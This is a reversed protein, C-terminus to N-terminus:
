LQQAAITADAGLGISVPFSVYHKRGKNNNDHIAVGITFAGGSKFAIDKADGTALKRTIVATYIGEAYGGTVTLDNQDEVRDQLVYEDTTKVQAGEFTVNWLDIFQGKAMYKDLTAQPKVGDKDHSFYGYLKKDGSKHDPMGNQDSHCAIFCGYDQFPPINDNIQISIRDAHGGAALSADAVSAGTGQWQLHVYLNDADYAVKVEVDKFGPMGQLPEPELTDGSTSGKFEGAVIKDAKVDYEGTDGVHCDVCAKTRKRVVNAASGHDNGRLFDWSVVGPYFTKISKGQINQWDIEAAQVGASGLAALSVFALAPAGQKISSLRKIVNMM